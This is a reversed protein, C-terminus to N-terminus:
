KDAVTFFIKKAFGADDVLTLRYKGPSLELALHHTQQTQGVFRDNVHWFLTADARSHAAKFVFREKKGSFGVPLYLTMGQQPYIMDIHSEDEEVGPMMPPLPRYAINFNRYYWEQVAPLIFWNHAVMKDPPYCDSNVRYQGSEDLMIQHHFPCIATNKGAVPIWITDVPECYPGAKYGSQRCVATQCMEEIPMRFWGSTPLFSFVDFLVPAAYEVGTLGPRGEGSANGVWVGVVYRPTVGIAWADRSGFSTGTKWAVQQRTSFSQWDAEEEPRNLRSMADFAFWISARTLLKKNKGTNTPRIQVSASLPHIDYVSYTEDSDHNLTRALSAYMGSMDWLSGEAGGLILSLGYHDAQQHLTTMGLHTLLEYFRGYDYQMLMRVLPVNLSQSIAEDAHVAGHYNKRYNQPSFGKLYLPIDPILTNPLIQGADMMAAYLFPKLVSGTSREARIMDIHSGNDPMDSSNVNGVYALVHGTPVDAVIIALNSIRNGAYSRAYRSAITMTQQQIVPQLTTYIRHSSTTKRLSNLLHPALDPLPNPRGPLPEDVSLLYTDRDIIGRQFLRYLLRDRKQKLLNRNRSIHILSPSNPLVALTASESWSLEDADRGFYRWAAAEVGVVNGGFPAHSLYLRLIHKKSYTLEMRLALLAEYAKESLTRPRGKRSIRILQMTITSGGSVVRRQSLNLRLARGLALLDIGPHYYFRKDEFVVISQAVKEPVDEIEPFRWQGDSAIRASLLTSDSAMLLDSEPDEFLPHPLCFAFLSFLFLVSSGILQRILKM